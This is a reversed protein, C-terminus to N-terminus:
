RSHEEILSEIVKAHEPQLNLFRVGMGMGPMCYRVESDVTIETSKVRFRLKLIAGQPFCSMSDIFAGTISLDNIRTTLRSVGSGECEVECLHTIRRASRKDTSESV